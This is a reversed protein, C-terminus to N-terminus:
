EVLILCYPCFLLPIGVEQVKLLQITEDHRVLSSLLWVIGCLTFYWLLSCHSFCFNTPTVINKSRTQASVLWIDGFPIDWM